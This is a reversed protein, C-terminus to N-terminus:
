VTNCRGQDRVNLVRDEVERCQDLGKLCFEELTETTGMRYVKLLKVIKSKSSMICSLIFTFSYIYPQRETM